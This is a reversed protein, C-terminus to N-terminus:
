CVAAALVLRQLLADSATARLQGSLSSAYACLNRVESGFRGLQPCRQRAYGLCSCQARVKDEQHFGLPNPLGLELRAATRPGVPGRHQRYTGTNTNLESSSVPVIITALGTVDAMPDPFPHHETWMTVMVWPCLTDQLLESLAMLWGPRRAQHSKTLLGDLSPSKRQSQM